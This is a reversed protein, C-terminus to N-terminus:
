VNDTYVIEGRLSVTSPKDIQELVKGGVDFVITKDLLHLRYGIIEGLPFESHSEQYHAKIYEAVVNVKEKDNSDVLQQLLDVENEIKITQQTYVALASMFGSTNAQKEQTIISIFVKKYYSTRM